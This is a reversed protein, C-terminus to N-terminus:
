LRKNNKIRMIENDHVELASERLERFPQYGRTYILEKNDEKGVILADEESSLAKVCREHM